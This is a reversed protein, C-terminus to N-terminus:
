YMYKMSTLFLQSDDVFFYLIKKRKKMMNKKTQVIDYSAITHVPPQNPPLPTVEQFKPRPWAGKRRIWIDRLSATLPPPSPTRRMTTDTPRDTPRHTPPHCQYHTPDRKDDCVGHGNHGDTVELLYLKMPFSTSHALTQQKTCIRRKKGQSKKKGSLIIPLSPDLPHSPIM